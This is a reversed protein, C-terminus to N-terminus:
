FPIEEKERWLGNEYGLAFLFSEYIAQLTEWRQKTTGKVAKELRSSNIVRQWNEKEKKTMKEYTWSQEIMKAFKEIVQEKEM